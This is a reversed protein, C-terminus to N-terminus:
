LAFRTAYHPISEKNMELKSADRWKFASIPKYLKNENKFISDNNIKLNSNDKLKNKIRIGM